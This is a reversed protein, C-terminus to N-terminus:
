GLLIMWMCIGDMLTDVHVLCTDGDTGLLHMLWAGIGYCSSSYDLHTRM